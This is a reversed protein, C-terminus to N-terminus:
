TPCQAPLHHDARQLLLGSHMCSSCAYCPRGELITPSVTSPAQGDSPSARMLKRVLLLGAAAFIVAAAICGVVLGASLVGKQLEAM